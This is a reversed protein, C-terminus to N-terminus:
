APSGGRVRADWREGLHRIIEECSVDVEEDTLTRDPARFTLSFGISKRGAVLQGGRYVDFVRVDELHDGAADRIGGLLAGVPVREEVLFAIDRRAAPHRPIKEYYRVEGAQEIIRELDADLVFVSGELDFAAAVSAALEGFAGVVVGGIELLASQKAAHFPEGGPEFVYEQIALGELLGEILGKLDYFGVPSSDRGWFPADSAGLLLVALRVSERPLEDAGQSIYVKGIEFLRLDETRRRQNTVAATLLGPILSTRMVSLEPSLPNRLRVLSRREDDPGFELRDPHGPDTFSYNMVELCGQAVLLERVWGMMLDSREREAPRPQRMEHRSPINAYGYLRGVEEALDIERGIDRRFSPVVVSLANDSASSTDAVSFGLRELLRATEDKTLDVGLVQSVRGQRVLVVNEPKPLPYCDIRGRVVTGGALEAILAAARDIASIVAEPDGGREFRYSAETELKLAKAGRRILVPDFLASELLVNRTTSKIETDRGGMVGAIAVPRKADAIVLVDTTLAREIEDITVIREGSRARRVVIRREALEDLDFPHLPQGQEMLVYNTIDVINNLPRMGVLELRRALWPPSPGVAVGGILRACYRPCGEVDEVEVSTLEDISSDGEELEVSPLNLSRGSFAAVERAVGIMGLLDPRNAMVELTLVIGEEGSDGGASDIESVEVGVDTLAWGLERPSFPVEVYEKLWKYPVRFM